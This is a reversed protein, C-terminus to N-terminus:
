YNKYFTYSLLVGVSVEVSEPAEYVSETNAFVLEDDYDILFTPGAWIALSLNNLANEKKGWPHWEYGLIPAVKYGVDELTAANNDEELTRSHYELNAGYYFNKMKSEPSFYRALQVRFFQDKEQLGSEDYYEAYRNPFNVYALSIKNQHHQVAYWASWGGETTYAILDTQLSMKLGRDETQGLLSISLFLSFFIITLQKM